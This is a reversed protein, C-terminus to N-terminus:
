FCTFREIEISFHKSVDQVLLITSLSYASCINRKTTRKVRNYHIEYHCSATCTCRVDGNTAHVSIYAVVLHSFGFSRDINRAKKVNKKERFLEISHLVYISSCDIGVRQLLTNINRILQLTSANMSHITCFDSYVNILPM